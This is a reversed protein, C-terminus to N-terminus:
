RRAHAVSLAEKKAYFFGTNLPFSLLRLREYAIKVGSGTTWLSIRERSCRGWSCMMNCRKCEAFRFLFRTLVGTPAGCRFCAVTSLLSKHSKVMGQQLCEARVWGSNALQWGLLPRLLLQLSFFVKAEIRFSKSFIVSAAPKTLSSRTTHGIEGIM